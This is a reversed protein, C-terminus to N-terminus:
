DFFKLYGESGLRRVGLNGSHFDPSFEKKNGKIKLLVMDKVFKEVWDQSLRLDKTIEDIDSNPILVNIEAVTEDVTEEVTKLFEPSNEDLPKRNNDQFSLSDFKDYFVNIIEGLVGEWNKVKGTDFKELLAWFIKSGFVHLSGSDYIMPVALGAPSKTGWLTNVSMDTRERASFFDSTFSELKLVKNGLDFAVGWSGGGIYSFTTSDGIIKDFTAKNELYMRKAIELLEADPNERERYIEVLLTAIDSQSELADSFASVISSESVSEFLLDKLLIHM